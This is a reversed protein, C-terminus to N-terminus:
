EAANVECTEESIRAAPAFKGLNIISNLVQMARCVWGAELLSTLHLAQNCIIAGQDWARCIEVATDQRESLPDTLGQAESVENM